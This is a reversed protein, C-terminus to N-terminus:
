STPSSSSPTTTSTGSPRSPPPVGDEGQGHPTPQCGGPERLRAHLGPHLQQCGHHLRQDHGPREDARRQLLALQAPLRLRRSEGYGPPAPQHLRGRGRHPTNLGPSRFQRGRGCHQRADRGHGHDGLVADRQRPRLHLRDHLRQLHDPRRSRRQRGPGLQVDGGRSRDDADPGWDEPRGRLDWVLLLDRDRGRRKPHHCGSPPRSPTLSRAPTRTSGPRSRGLRPNGKVSM